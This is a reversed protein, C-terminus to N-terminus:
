YMITCIRRLEEILEGIVKFVWLVFILMLIIQVLLIFFQTIVQSIIVETVNVGAVWTRDMLGERREQILVVATLGISIGLATSYIHTHVHYQAWDFPPLLFLLM